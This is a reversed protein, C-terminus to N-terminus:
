LRNSLTHAIERHIKIRILLRKWWPAQSLELEYQALLKKELKFKELLDEDHPIISNPASM